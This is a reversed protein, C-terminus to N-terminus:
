SYVKSFINTYKEFYKKFRIESFSQEINLTNKSLQNKM